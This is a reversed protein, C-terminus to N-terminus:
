AKGTLKSVVNQWSISLTAYHEGAAEGLREALKADGNLRDIAKALERAEPKVVLGHEGDRMFELPGGSDMTTIVPKRALMAEQTVYGLDEDFPPFIVGRANAYLELMDESSVHGRWEARDGLRLEEIRGRFEAADGSSDANGTFVVRANTQSLALAELVLHQRKLGSIRSPFYFYDGFGGSHLRAAMPPPHYLPEAALGNHKKLRGAVNRSNAFLRAAKSLTETDMNRIIQRVLDGRPSNQLGSRGADWLDYADRYQHILWVAKNPHQMLYAPFRLGIMLDIPEGFFGSLDINAAAVAHDIISEPTKWNFPITAAEVQHGVDRLEECLRRAHEEAGGTVFPAQTNAIVIRM